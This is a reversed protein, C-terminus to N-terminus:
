SLAIGSVMVLIPTLVVYKLTNVPKSASAARWMDWADGGKAVPIHKPLAILRNAQHSCFRRPRHVNINSNNQEATTAEAAYADARISVFSM